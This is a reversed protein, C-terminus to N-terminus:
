MRVPFMRFISREVLMSTCRRVSFLVLLQHRTTLARTRHHEINNSNNDAKTQEATQEWSWPKNIRVILIIMHKRVHPYEFISPKYNIISIRISISSKSTGMLNPFRWTYLDCIWDAVPIGFCWWPSPDKHNVCRNKIIQVWAELCTRVWGWVLIVLHLIFFRVSLLWWCDVYICCIYELHPLHTHTHTDVRGTWSKSRPVDWSAGERRMNWRQTCHSIWQCSNVLKKQVSCTCVSSQDIAM